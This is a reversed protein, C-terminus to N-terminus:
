EPRAGCRGREPARGPARLHRRDQLLRVDEPQLLAVHDPGEKAWKEVYSNLLPLFQTM